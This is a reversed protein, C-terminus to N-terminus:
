RGPSELLKIATLPATSLIINKKLYKYLLTLGFRLARQRQFHPGSAELVQKETSNCSAVFAGHSVATASARQEKAEANVESRPRPSCLLPTCLRQRGRHRAPPVPPLQTEGARSGDWFTGRPKCAGGPMRRGPLRLCPRHNIAPGM